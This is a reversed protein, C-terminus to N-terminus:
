EIDVTEDSNLSNLFMTALFVTLDIPSDKKYEGLDVDYHLTGSSHDYNLDIKIEKEENKFTVQVKEMQM